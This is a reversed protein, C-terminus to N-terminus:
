AILSLLHFYPPTSVSNFIDRTHLWITFLSLRILDSSLYIIRTFIGLITLAFNVM